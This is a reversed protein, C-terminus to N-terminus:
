NEYFIEQIVSLIYTTATEARLIREGLSVSYVNNYSKILEKEKESFGGEGGILAYIKKSKDLNKITNYLKNNSREECFIIISNKDNYINDLINKLYDEKHVKPFDLRECQEVAEIINPEIRSIKNIHQTYQSKFPFFDTVGLETANKILLEIKQIPSFILGLFNLNKFDRLKEIIKVVIEKKTINVISGLFEGDIGNILIINDKVNRRMVNVIYNINNKESLIINNNLKLCDKCFLRILTM